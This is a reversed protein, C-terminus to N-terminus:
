LLSNKFCPTAFGQKLFGAYLFYAPKKQRSGQNEQNEQNSSKEIM